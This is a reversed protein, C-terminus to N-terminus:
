ASGGGRWLCSGAWVGVVLLVVGAVTAAGQQV